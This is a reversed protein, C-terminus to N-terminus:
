GAHYQHRLYRGAAYPVEHGPWCLAVRRPIAPPATVPGPWTNGPWMAQASGGAVLLSLLYWSGLSM